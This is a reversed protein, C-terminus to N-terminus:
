GIFPLVDNTGLGVQPRFVDRGELLDRVHHQRAHIGQCLYLPGSGFLLVILLEQRTHNPHGLHIVLQAIMIGLM